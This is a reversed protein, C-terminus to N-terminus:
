PNQLPSENVEDLHSSNGSLLSKITSNSYSVASVTGHLKLVDNWTLIDTM